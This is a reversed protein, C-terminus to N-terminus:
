FAEQMHSPTTGSGCWVTSVFNSCTLVKSLVTSSEPWGTWFWVRFARRSKKAASFVANYRYSCRYLTCCWHPNHVDCSDDAQSIMLLAKLVSSLWVFGGSCIVCGIHWAVLIKMGFVNVSRLAVPSTRSSAGITYRGYRYRDCYYFFQSM